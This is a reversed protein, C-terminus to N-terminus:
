SQSQLDKSHEKQVAVKKINEFGQDVALKAGILSAIDSTTLGKPM